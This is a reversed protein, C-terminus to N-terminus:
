PELFGIAKLTGGSIQTVNYRLKTNTAGFRANPIDFKKWVFDIPAEATAPGTIHAVAVTKADSFPTVNATDELVITATQGAPFSTIRLKASWFDKTYASTDLTGTIAGTTTVSQEGTTIANFAM